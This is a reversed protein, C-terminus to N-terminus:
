FVDVAGGRDTDELRGRQVCAMRRARSSWSSHYPRRETAFTGGLSTISWAHSPWSLVVDIRRRWRTKAAVRPEMFNWDIESDYHYGQNVVFTALNWFVSKSVFQWFKSLPASGFSAEDELLSRLIKIMAFFWKWRYIVHSHKIANARLQMKRSCSHFHLNLSADNQM